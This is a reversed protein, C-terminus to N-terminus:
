NFCKEREKRIEEYRSVLELNVTIQLLAKITEQDCPRAKNAAEMYPLAIRFIDNAKEIVKEYSSIDTADSDKVMKVARNIYLVALNYNALPNEPQLEIAAKYHEIASDKYQQELLQAYYFRLLYDMKRARVFEGIKEVAAEYSPPDNLYIDLELDKLKQDLSLNLKVLANRCNQDCISDVTPIRKAEVHNFNLGEEILSLSRQIDKLSGNRYILAKIYFIHGLAVDPVMSHKEHYIILASDFYLLANLTDRLGLKAQALWDHNEYRNNLSNALLLFRIAERYYPDRNVTDDFPFITARHIFAHGALVLLSDMRPLHDAALPSIKEDNISVSKVFDRTASRIFSPDSSKPDSEWALLYSLGRHYYSRILYKEKLLNTDSLAQDFYEIAATYNQFKFEKM